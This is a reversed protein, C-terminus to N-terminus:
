ISYNVGQLLQNPLLSIMKLTTFDHKKNYYRSLYGSLRNIALTGTMDPITDTISAFYEKEQPALFDGETLFQNQLYIDTIFQCIRLRTETYNAAKVNAFSLSIVPYTGQM